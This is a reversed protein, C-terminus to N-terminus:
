AEVRIIIEMGTVVLLRFGPLGQLFFILSSMATAHPILIMPSCSKLRYHDQTKVFYKTGM